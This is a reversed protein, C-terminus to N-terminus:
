TWRCRWQRALRFTLCVPRGTGDSWKVGDSCFLWTVLVQRLSSDTSSAFASVSPATTQRWSNGLSVYPMARVVCYWRSTESTPQRWWSSDRQVDSCTFSCPQRATTAVQRSCSGTLVVAYSNVPHPTLLILGDTSCNIIGRSTYNRADPPPTPTIGRAALNHSKRRQTWRSLIVSRM